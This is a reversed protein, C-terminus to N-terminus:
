YRLMSAREGNRELRQEGILRRGIRQPKRDAQKVRVTKSIEINRV